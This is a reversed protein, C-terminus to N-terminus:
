THRCCISVPFGDARFYRIKKRLEQLQRPMYRNVKSWYPLPCVAPTGEVPELFPRHVWDAISYNNGLGLLDRIYRVTGAHVDWANTLCTLSNCPPCRRGVAHM